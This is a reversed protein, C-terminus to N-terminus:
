DFEEAKPPDNCINDSVVELRPLGHEREMKRREEILEAPSMQFVRPESYRDKRSSLGFKELIASRALENFRRVTTWRMMDKVSYSLSWEKRGLFAWDAAWIEDPYDPNLYKVSFYTKPM